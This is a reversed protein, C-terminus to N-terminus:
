VPVVMVVVPTRRVVRETVSGLSRLRAIGTQGKTGIVIMDIEYESVASLIEQHPIGRRLHGESTLGARQSADIVEEIAREGRREAKEVPIDYEGPVFREDIVYLGHITSQFNRAQEIGIKIAKRASESGDTPLLINSYDQTDM